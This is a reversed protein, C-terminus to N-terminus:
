NDKNSEEAYAVKRKNDKNRNKSKLFKKQRKDKRRITKGM